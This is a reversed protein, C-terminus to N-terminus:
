KWGVPTVGALAHDWIRLDSRADIGFQARGVPSDVGRVPDRAAGMIGMTGRRM